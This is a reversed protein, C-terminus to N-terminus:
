SAPTAQARAIYLEAQAALASEPYEEQLMTYAELAEDRDGALEFARGANLLYQPSAVVNPFFTAARRYREGARAFEGQTELVAAEGAYASAGLLNEEKDFDAFYELAADYDGLRYLADAAYFSALNGADTSGYSDAIELLGPLGATGDLAARYEGNEYLGVAAALASEAEDAQSARWVTLGVLLLGLAVIGAFVAIIVNRFRSYFDYARAYFTVVQDERLESRRSHTSLNQPANLASMPVVAAHLSPSPPVLAPRM